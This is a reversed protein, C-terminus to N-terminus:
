SIMELLSKVDAPMGDMSIAYLEAPGTVIVALPVIRLSLLEDGPGIMATARVVTRVTREGAVIRRGEGTVEAMKM